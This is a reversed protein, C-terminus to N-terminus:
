LAYNLNPEKDADFYLVRYEDPVGDEENWQIDKLIAPQLLKILFGGTNDALIYYNFKFLKNMKQYNYIKKVYVNDSMFLHHYGNDIIQSQNAERFMDFYKDTHEDDISIFGILTTM